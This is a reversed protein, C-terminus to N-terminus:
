DLSYFFILILEYSKLSNSSPSKPPTIFNFVHSSSVNSQNFMLNPSHFKDNKIKQRSSNKNKIKHSIPNNIKDM